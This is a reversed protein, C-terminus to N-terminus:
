SSKQKHRSLLADITAPQQQRRHKPIKQGARGGSGSGKGAGGASGGSLGSGGGSRAPSALLKRRKGPQQQSALGELSAAAGPGGQRQLDDAFHWDSHEARQAEPM